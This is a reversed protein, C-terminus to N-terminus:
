PVKEGNLLFVFLSGVQTACLKKVFETEIIDNQQVAVSARYRYKAITLLLGASPLLISRNRKMKLQNNPGMM